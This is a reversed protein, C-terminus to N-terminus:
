SFMGVLRSKCWNLVAKATRMEQATMEGCMLRLDDDSKDEIDVVLDGVKMKYSGRNWWDDMSAWGNKKLNLVKQKQDEPPGEKKWKFAATRSVKQPGCNRISCFRQSGDVLSIGELEWADAKTCLCPHLACDIYFDGPKFKRSARPM